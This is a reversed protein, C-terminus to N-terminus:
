ITEKEMGDYRFEVACYIAGRLAKCSILRIEASGLNPVKAFVQGSAKNTTPRVGLHLAHVAGRLAM